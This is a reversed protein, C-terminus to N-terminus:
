VLKWIKKFINKATITAITSKASLITISDESIKVIFNKIFFCKSVSKMHGFSPTACGSFLFINNNNNNNNIYTSPWLAQFKTQIKVKAIIKKLYTSSSKNKVALNRSRNSNQAPDSGSFVASFGFFLYCSWGTLLLM